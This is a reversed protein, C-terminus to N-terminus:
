FRPQTLTCYGRVESSVPQGETGITVAGTLRNLDLVIMKSDSTEWNMRIASDSFSVVKRPRGTESGNWIVENTDKVIELTWNIGGAYAADSSSAECALYIRDRFLTTNEYIAVAIGITAAILFLSLSIMLAPRIIRM